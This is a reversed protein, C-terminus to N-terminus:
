LMVLRLDETKVKSSTESSLFCFASNFRPGRLLRIPGEPSFRWLVVGTEEGFNMLWWGLRLPKTRWWDSGLWSKWSSWCKRLFAPAVGGPEAVGGLCVWMNGRM